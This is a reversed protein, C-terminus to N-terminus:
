NNYELTSVCEIHPTNPFMDVPRIKKLVYGNNCDSQNLREKMMDLILDDPVLSGSDMYEKAKLWLSSKNKVHSRLMYGTSIQPIKFSDVLFKAQTGKGGGPPGILLINM